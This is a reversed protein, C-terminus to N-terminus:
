GEDEDEVDWDKRAIKGLLRREEAEATLLVQLEHEDVHTRIADEVLDRLTPAPIADLEVSVPGFGRSRTDTRKTPRTPLNWERIQQPTVALLNFELDVGFGRLRDEIVRPIDQGSPDYDGLYYIVLPADEACEAAEYLFSLSPYGRCVMLDVTWRDTVPEIVGALADKEIWVEVRGVRGHWLDRRYFRAVDGLADDLGDWTAIHRRHRTSDTIWGWPIRGQERMTVLARQVRRYGPETKAVLGRTSAQYFAGRVTMPRMAAVISALGDMLAITEASVPRGPGRGNDASAGSIGSMAGGGLAAALAVPAEREALEAELRERHRDCLILVGAEDCRAWSAERRCGPRGCIVKGSFEGGVRNPNNPPGAM